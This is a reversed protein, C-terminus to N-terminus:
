TENSRGRRASAPDFQWRALEVRARLDISALVATLRPDSARLPDATFDALRSVAGAADGGGLLARQLEALTALIDRARRRAARDRPAEAGEEQLALLGSLSVAAAEGLTDAQLGAPNSARAPVAFGADTSAARSRTAGGQGATRDIRGVETM